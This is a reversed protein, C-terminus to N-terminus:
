KQQSKINKSNNNNLDCNLTIFLLNQTHTHTVKTSPFYLAFTGVPIHTHTQELMSKPLYAPICVYIIDIVYTHRQIRMHTHMNNECVCM